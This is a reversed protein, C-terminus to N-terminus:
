CGGWSWPAYYCSWDGGSYVQWCNGYPDCQWRYGGAHAGPAYAVLLAVALATAAVVLLVNRKVKGIVKM